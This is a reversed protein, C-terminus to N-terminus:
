FQFYIFQGGNFVGFLLICLIISIYGAIRVVKFPSNFVPIKAPYFEQVIEVILLLLIWFVSYFFTSPTGTFLGGPKFTLISKSISLADSVSNARFFLWAFSVLTFAIIGNVFGSIKRFGLINVNTYKRFVIGIIQYIGHLAGWIIFTWSAGHWIGSILFVIFLNLYWRPISVRNGGLPIYLYDRFWTSLSIHWRSWFEKITTSLYPRRFNIMLKYGM